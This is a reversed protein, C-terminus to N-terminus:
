KAGVEQYDGDSFCFETKCIPCICEVEQDTGGDESLAPQINTIKCHESRKGNEILKKVAEEKSLM